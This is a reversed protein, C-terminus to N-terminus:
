LFVHIQPLWVWVNTNGAPSRLTQYVGDLRVDMHPAFFWVGSLWAGFSSPEGASGSDMSEGTVMVHVGQVPEIDAQLFGAYGGRHGNWTLSQYVWDVEAMLVLQQYPSVRAFVGHAQRYDTVNYIIDRTARTFQSSAGVAITNAPAYEVYLSYGRERYDDPHVQFNGVIGMVEGRFRDVNFALAAGYQQSDNFDSRTLARAWLNHEINRIGFPIAMRGARVLWSGDEDVEYGVWHERSVVNESAASTLSAAHVGQPAYGISGAARVRDVKIDAMLDARMTIFQQTAPAGEPKLSFYAERFDGGVRLGEAPQVLGWM